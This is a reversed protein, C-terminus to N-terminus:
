VHTYSYQVDTRVLTGGRGFLIMLTNTRGCVCICRSVRVITGGICVRDRRTDVATRMGFLAFLLALTADTPLVVVSYHSYRSNDDPKYLDCETDKEDHGRKTDPDSPYAQEEQPYNCKNNM